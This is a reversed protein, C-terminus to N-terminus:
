RTQTKLSHGIREKEGAFRTALTDATAAPNALYFSDAHRCFRAIQPNPLTKLYRFKVADGEYESSIRFTYGWGWAMGLFICFSGVSLWLIKNRLFHTKPKVPEQQVPKALFSKILPILEKLENSEPQPLQRPSNDIRLDILKKRLEIQSKDADTAMTQLFLGQSELREIITQLLLESM